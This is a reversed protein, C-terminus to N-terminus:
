SKIKEISIKSSIQDEASNTLLINRHNDYIDLISEMIHSDGDYSGDVKFKFSTYPRTDDPNTEEVRTTKIILYKNEDM